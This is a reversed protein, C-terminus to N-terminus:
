IVFGYLINFIIKASVTEIQLSVDTNILFYNSLMSSVSLDKILDNYERTISLALIHGHRHTSEHVHHSLNVTRLIDSLQKVINFDGLILLNDSNTALSDNFASQEKFFDAAKLDNEKTPDTRYIIAVCVTM